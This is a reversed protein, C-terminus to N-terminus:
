YACTKEAGASYVAERGGKQADIRKKWLLLHYLVMALNRPYSRRDTLVLYNRQSFFAFNGNDLQHSLVWRYGRDALDAYDGIGLASAENLAASVAAAYYLVEPMRHHCDFRAAGTCTVGTAIYDTLKWVIPLVENDKTVQYYEILDLLEFANYQFCLFHDRARVAAVSYPLEGSALQVSKLWRVMARCHVLYHHEGTVEFLTAFTKLALTSNNPVKPGTRGYFYNIALLDGTEQFGIHHCAFNYWRAASNVLLSDLTHRYTTLLGIAAYCGEVTAIRGKWEPNPYEWYGDDTQQALVFDSCREAIQRCDLLGATALMWNVKIWYGQAQFYILKDLWPLFRLYSKVFRGIRSNFRVGSDAGELASGNWHTQVLFRHLLSIASDLAEVINSM